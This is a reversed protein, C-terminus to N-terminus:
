IGLWLKGDKLETKVQEPATVISELGSVLTPSPSSGGSYGGGSSPNSTFTISKAEGAPM